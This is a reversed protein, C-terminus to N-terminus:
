ATHPTDKLLSVMKRAEDTPHPRLIDTGKTPATSRARLFFWPAQPPIGPRETNLNQREKREETHVIFTHSYHSSYGIYHQFTTVSGLGGGGGVVLVVHM